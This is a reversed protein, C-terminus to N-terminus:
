NNEATLPPLAARGLNSEYKKNNNKVVFANKMKRIRQVVNEFLKYNIPRVHLQM